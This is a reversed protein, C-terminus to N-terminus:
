KSESAKKIADACDWVRIGKEPDASMKSGCDAAVIFRGDSSIAISRYDGIKDNSAIKRGSKTEWVHIRNSATSLYRSDPTFAACYGGTFSKPEDEEKLDWVITKDGGSAALLNGDPSFVISNIPAGVGKLKSIEKGSEIDWVHVIEDTGASFIRRQGTRPEKAPGFGVALIKGKPSKITQIEKMAMLDWVVISSQDGNIGVCVYRGDESVAVAEANKLGLKLKDDGTAISVLRVDGDAVVISKGDPTYVLAHVTREGSITRQVKPALPNIFLLSESKGGGNCAFIASKPSAVVQTVGSLDLSNLTKLEQARVSGHAVIAALLLSLVSTRSM